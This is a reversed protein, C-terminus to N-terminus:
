SSQDRKSVGAVLLEQSGQGTSLGSSAQSPQASLQTPEQLAVAGLRRCKLSLGGSM